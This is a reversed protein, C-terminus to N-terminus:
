IDKRPVKRVHRLIGSSDVSTIVEDVSQKLQHVM